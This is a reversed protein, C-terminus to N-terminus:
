RALMAAEKVFDVDEGLRWFHEDRWIDCLVAKVKKVNSLSLQSCLKSTKKLLTEKSDPNRMVIKDNASNTELLDAMYVLFTCFEKYTLGPNTEFAEQQTEAPHAAFYSKNPSLSKPPPIKTPLPIKLSPNQPHHFPNYSLVNWLVNWFVNWFSFVYNRCSELRFVERFSGMFSGWSRLVEGYFEGYFKGM